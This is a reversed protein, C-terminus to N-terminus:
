KKADEAKDKAEEIKEDISDKLEEKKEDFSDKLEDTKDDWLEVFYNKVSDISDDIGSKFGEHQTYLVGAAFGLLLIFLSQKM